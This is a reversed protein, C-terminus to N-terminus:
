QVVHYQHIGWRPLQQTLQELQRANEVPGLWVKHIAGSPQNDTKIQGRFGAQQELRHLLQRANRINSFAGAQVWLPFDTAVGKDVPDAASIAVIEVPATGHGLVGLRSAAAYSLDIIRGAHFPGRDNVKVVVSKRNQLNTVKVWTPLPLTKHAATMAYMDYPEGSSTRKGHFKLGYWSALGQERFNRADKMVHYTIGRVTYSDPNGYRSHPVKQPVADPVQSVDVPTSPGYDEDPFEHTKISCASM